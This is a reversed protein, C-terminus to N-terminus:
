SKRYLYQFFAHSLVQLDVTKMAGFHKHCMAYALRLKSSVYRLFMKKWIFAGSLEDDERERAKNRRDLSGIAKQLQKLVLSLLRHVGSYV